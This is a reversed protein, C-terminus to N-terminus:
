SLTNIPLRFQYEYTFDVISYKQISFGRSYRTDRLLNWRSKQRPWPLAEWDHVKCILLRLFIGFQASMDQAIQVDSFNRHGMM